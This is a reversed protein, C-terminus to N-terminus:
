ASTLFCFQVLLSAYKVCLRQEGHCVSAIDLKKELKECFEIDDDDLLLLNKLWSVYRKAEKELERRQVAVSYMTHRERRVSRQTQCAKKYMETLEDGVLDDVDASGDTLYSPPISEIVKISSKYKEDLNIVSQFLDFFNSGIVGQAKQFRRLLQSNPLTLM